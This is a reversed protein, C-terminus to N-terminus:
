GNVSTFIVWTFTDIADLAADLPEWSPPPAIVIAPAELVRAGLSELLQTFRAAQAAARTVVITRGQLPRQERMSVSVARGGRGGAAAGAGRRRGPRAADRGPRPRAARGRRGAGLRQRAARAPGRRRGRGREAAAHLRRAPRPRGHAHQLLRGPPG